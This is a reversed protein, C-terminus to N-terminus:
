PCASLSWHSGDWCMGFRAALYALDVGDVAGDGDLDADAYYYAGGEASGHAYALWALDKGDARDLTTSDSRNIDARAENFLVELESLRSGFVNDPNRVELDVPFEGVQMARVGRVTPEVTLLAQIRDCALVTLNELRVLPNGEIDTPLGETDVVVDAGSQFNSGIIDLTLQAGQAVAAPQFGNIQPRPWGSIENSYAASEGGSNYAKVAVYYTRCDGSVNLDAHTNNGVDHVGTYQGSSLGYYVRYGSAEQVPDWALSITGAHLPTVLALAIGAIWGLIRTCTRVRMTIGEKGLPILAIRIGPPRMNVIFDESDLFRWIRLLDRCMPSHVRMLM